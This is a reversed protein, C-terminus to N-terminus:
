LCFGELLVTVEGTTGIVGDCNGGDYRGATVGGCCGGRM